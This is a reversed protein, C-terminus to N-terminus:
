CRPHGHDALEHVRPVLVAAVFIGLLALLGVGELPHACIWAISVDVMRDEEDSKLPLMAPARGSGHKLQCLRRSADICINRQLAAFRINQQAAGTLDAGRIQALPSAAV